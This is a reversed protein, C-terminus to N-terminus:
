RVSKKPVVKPKDAKGQIANMLEAHEATHGSHREEALIRADDFAKEITAFRESGLKLQGDIRVIADKISGGGNPQLEKLAVKMMTTMERTDDAKAKHAEARARIVEAIAPGLKTVVLAIAIGFALIILSPASKAFIDLNV